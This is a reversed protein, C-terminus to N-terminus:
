RKRALYSKWGFRVLILQVLMLIILTLTTTNSSLRALFTFPLYTGSVVLFIDMIVNPVDESLKMFIEWLEYLAALGFSALLASRLDLNFLIFILGLIVGSLFHVVSWFDLYVGDDFSPELNNKTSKKPM